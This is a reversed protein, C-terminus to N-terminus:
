ILVLAWVVVTAVLSIFVAASGIDKAKRSLENYEAGFKDVVVEIGTNLLETILVILLVLILLASEVRTKGLWLAIPVLFILLFVEQKVAAESRFASKLGAMSFQTAKVIRDFGVATNKM